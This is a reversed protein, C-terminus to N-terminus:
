RPAAARGFTPPPPAARPELACAAAAARRRVTARGNLEQLILRYQEATLRQKLREFPFNQVFEAQLAVIDRTHLRFQAQLEAVVEEEPQLPYRHLDRSRFDYGGAARRRGRGGGGDEEEEEDDDDGEADGSGAAREEM